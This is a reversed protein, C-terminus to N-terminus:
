SVRAAAIHVSRAGFEEGDSREHELAMEVMEGPVQPSQAVTKPAKLESEGQNQSKKEEKLRLLM